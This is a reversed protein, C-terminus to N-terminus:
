HSKQILQCTELAETTAFDANLAFIRALSDRNNVDYMSILKGRRSLSRLQSDTVTAIDVGAYLWDSFRIYKNNTLLCPVRLRAQLTFASMLDSSLKVLAFLKLSSNKAYWNILQISSRRPRDKMDLLIVFDKDAFEEFVEKLTPLDEGNKLECNERLTKFKIKAIKSAVPCSKGAKSQVLDSMTSDHFIVPVHDKTHQVDLETGDAGRLYASKFSAMSDKFARETDGAHTICLTKSWATPTLLFFLIIATKNKM